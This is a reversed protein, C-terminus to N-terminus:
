PRANKLTGSEVADSHFFDLVWHFNTTDNKGVSPEGTQVRKCGNERPSLLM